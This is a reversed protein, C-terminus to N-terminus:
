RHEPSAERAAHKAQFDIVKRRVASWGSIRVKGSPEKRIAETTMPNPLIILRPTEGDAVHEVIYVYYNAAIDPRQAAQWEPVELEFAGAEGSFSKVEIYRGDSALYDAGVNPGQRTVTCGRKETEYSEVFWGAREEVQMNNLRVVPQPDHREREPLPERDPAKLRRPKRETSAVIGDGEVDDVRDVTYLSAPVLQPLRQAPKEDSIAPTTRRRRTAVSVEVDDTPEDPEPLLNFAYEAFRLGAAAFRASTRHLEDPSHRAQALLGALTHAAHLRRQPLLEALARAADLSFAADTSRAFLVADHLYASPQVVVDPSAGDSDRALTLRVDSVLWPRVNQIAQALKAFSEPDLLGEARMAVPWLAVAQHWRSVLGLEM